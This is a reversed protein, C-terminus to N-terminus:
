ECNAHESHPGHLSSGLDIPLWRAPLCIGAVASEIPVPIACAVRRSLLYRRAATLFKIPYIPSEPAYSLGVSRSVVSEREQASSCFYWGSRATGREAFYSRWAGARDPEERM